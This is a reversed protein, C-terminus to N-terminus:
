ENKGLVINRTIEFVGHTDDGPRGATHTDGNFTQLVSEAEVRHDVQTDMVAKSKTEFVWRKGTNDEAEISRISM